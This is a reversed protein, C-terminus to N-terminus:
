FFLCIPWPKSVDYLYSLSMHDIESAGLPPPHNSGQLGDNSLKSGQSRIKLSPAQPVRFLMNPFYTLKIRPLGSGPARLGNFYAKSVGLRLDM